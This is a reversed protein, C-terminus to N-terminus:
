FKYDISSDALINNITDIEEPRLDAYLAQSLTYSVHDTILDWLGKEEFCAKYRQVAHALILKYFDAENKLKKFQGYVQAEDTGCGGIADKLNAVITAFESDNLTPLIGFEAALRALQTRAADIEKAQDATPRKAWWNVLLYVGVAGGGYILVKKATPDMGQFHKKLNLGTIKGGKGKVAVLLAGGALIPVLYSPKFPATKKLVVLSSDLLEDPTLVVPTFDGTSYFNIFTDDINTQDIDWHFYGQADTAFEQSLRNGAKDVYFFGAPIGQGQENIVRGDGVYLRAQGIAQSEAVSYYYKTLENM